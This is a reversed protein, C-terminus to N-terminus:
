VVGHVAGQLQAASGPLVQLCHLLAPFAGPLLKAAQGSAALLHKLGLLGGLRVEWSSHGALCCLHASLQAQQAHPLACGAAALAQAATERVPAVAQVRAPQSLCALM